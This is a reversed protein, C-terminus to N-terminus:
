ILYSPPDCVERGGREDLQYWLSTGIDFVPTSFDDWSALKHGYDRAQNATASDSEMLGNYSACVLMLNDLRDLLKSGGMQRNRRHHPVLTDSQGCHYCAKDRERLLKMQKNTAM